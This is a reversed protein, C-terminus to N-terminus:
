GREVALASGCASAERGRLMVADADSRLASSPRPTLIWTATAWAILLM